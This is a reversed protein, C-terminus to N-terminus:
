TAPLGEVVVSVRGASGAVVVSGALYATASLTRNDVTPIVVDAASAGPAEASVIAGTSGIRGVNITPSGTIAVTTIFRVRGVYLGRATNNGFNFQGTATIDVDAGFSLPYITTTSSDSIAATTFAVGLRVGIGFLNDGSNSDIIIGNDHTGRPTINDFTCTDANTLKLIYSNTVANASSHIGNVIISAANDLRVAGGPRGATGAISHDDIVAGNIVSYATSNLFIGEKQANKVSVNGFHCRSAEQAFFGVACDNAVCNAILNGRTDDGSPDKIQFAGHYNTDPTADADVWDNSTCGVIQCGYCANIDFAHKAHRSVTCNSIINGTTDVKARTTSGIGNGIISFGIDTTRATCGDVISAYCGDLQVAYPATSAVGDALRSDLAVLECNTVRLYDCDLAYIAIADAEYVRVNDIKAYTCSELRICRFSGSSEFGPGQVQLDRVGSNNTSTITIAHHASGTACKIISARGVGQLTVLSPITIASSILYSGAPVIVTGGGASSAATLAAQIEATDDTTGDGTAGFDKVSIIDGLKSTVSRETAGSGSATFTSENIDGEALEFGTGAANFRLYYGAKGTTSFETSIGSASVGDSLRLSRDILDQQRLSVMTRRDLALEHSAAPFPDTRPYDTEQSNVPDNIITLRYSSSLSSVLTLAGGDEDGAGTLTYDTTLVLVTETGDSILTKVVRLDANALFYPTTFPGTTGAGTYSLRTVTDASVTM